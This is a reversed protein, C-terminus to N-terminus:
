ASLQSVVQVQVMPRIYITNVGTARLYTVDPVPITSSIPLLQKGYGGSVARM